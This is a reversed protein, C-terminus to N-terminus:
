AFIVVFYKFHVWKFAFSLLVTPLLSNISITWVPFALALGRHSPYADNFGGLQPSNGDSTLEGSLSICIQMYRLSSWSFQM